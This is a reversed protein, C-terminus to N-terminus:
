EDPAAARALVREGILVTTAGAIQWLRGPSATPWGDSRLHQRDDITSL